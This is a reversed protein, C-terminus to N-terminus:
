AKDKLIIIRFIAYLYRLNEKVKLPCRFAAKFWTAFAKGFQKNRAYQPAIKVVRIWYTERHTKLYDMHKENIRELGSIRKTSTKSIREGSHVHYIVLPLNVCRVEYKKSLRLWVDYDQASQMEVDFGGIERLASARLLPFSTSGIFNDCLLEEYVMEPVPHPLREVIKGSTDYVTNNGCYVLAVEPSVFEKLQKEIKESLWEDDDDLFGIFEGNAAALGTNRAACAGMCKEHAIYTVNRDTAYAEVMTKVDSRLEYEEPSDDVVFVEINPYTQNLISKLAREVIEPKRKHTTIVASVLM